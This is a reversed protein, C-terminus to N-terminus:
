SALIGVCEKHGDLLNVDKTCPWLLFDVGWEPWAGCFFARKQGLTEKGESGDKDNNDNDDGDGENVGEEGFPVEPPPECWYVM